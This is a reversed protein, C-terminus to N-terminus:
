GAGGVRRLAVRASLVGAAIAAVLVAAVAGLAPAWPVALEVPVGLTGSLGARIGLLSPLAVLAGLLAGLAVVFASEAAVTWLVQGTTAGTRRLVRFDAARDATAMLLTGVVAIGTYGASLAVLLLTFVLVLRDEEADASGAYTEVTVETGGLVTVPPGTRYVVETLASPDHLRVTARPLLVAYPASRDSLVAVVRVEATTGDEFMVEAIGGPRARLAALASQSVAIANPGKLRDLSGSLVTLRHHVTAFRGPDVGGAELATRAQGAYLTTPLLAAGGIRAVAADTLGPTADPVVAAQARVAVTDRAIYSQATTATNGTILVTFGITALVPAITSATRRVATLMGERVLLPTAGHHRSLPWSVLRVLPPLIAPVLLTTGTILGVATVLALTIMDTPEASASAVAAALGLTSFALGTVLRARTMPRDDVAAERLAEMPATAAARRSASWVGALSVVIGALFTVALIWPQVRAEFGRPEFGTRVLVRGLWPALVAGLLCGAASGAFGVVLAEGCLMRRVQGPTAGVMRLLGLERRRQAVTFSFTSAVVFVAVFASLGTMAALIQAGIWRTKEDEPSALGERADGSLVEDRGGVAQRAAAAVAAPDGDPELVLGIARVGGTLEAARTDTVYYGPGDVTGSVTFPAPGAATLLTVHQGAQLGLTRDVAVEDPRRPPRGRDLGYAGLSASSWGHGLREGARQDGVPEAGDGTGVVAQAYFSRDPVAQRVGPLRQLLRTLEAARASPFPARELFAGNADDGRGSQVVVAGAAYRDPVGSGGSLLILGSMTLIAVGACLAGFAGVLATWRERVAALTEEVTALVRRAPALSRRAHAVADETAVPEQVSGPAPSAGARDPTTM